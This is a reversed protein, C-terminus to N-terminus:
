IFKAAYKEYYNIFKEAESATFADYIRSSSFREQKLAMLSIIFLLFIETFRSSDYYKEKFEKLFTLKKREIVFITSDNYFEYIDENESHFFSLVLEREQSWKLEKELEMRKETFLNKGKNKQGMRSPLFLLLNIKGLERRSAFTTGDDFHYHYIFFTNFFNQWFEESIMEDGVFYFIEKKFGALMLSEEENFSSYISTKLEM